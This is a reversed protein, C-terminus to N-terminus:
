PTVEIIQGTARILRAQAQAFRVHAEVHAQELDRLIRTADLVEILTTAQETLGPRLRDVLGKAQQVLSEYKALQVQASEVEIRASRAEGSALKVADDLAKRAAQAKTTAAKTEARVRGHDFLPISLQIRLGYRDNREQWPTRRGQLELEPLGSARVIGADADALEVQAALLQLDPRQRILAEDVAASPTLDPFGPKLDAVVDLGGVSRLRELAARTESQRQETRLRAQELDLTVQTLHFGPAVGGEVRLRTAEHLREYVAQVALASRALESAGIADMYANLVETQVDLVVLRYSAEAEAILARGSKRFANTRGFFDLPQALVLDDDSGGTEPDSTYGVFLRTAPSAGLARSTLKSQDLRLSAAQLSPRSSRATRLVDNLGIQQASGFAAIGALCLISITKLFEGVSLSTM